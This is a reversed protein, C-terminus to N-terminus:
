LAEKLKSIRKLQERLDNGISEIPKDPSNKYLEFARKDVVKLNLFNELSKIALSIQEELNKLSVCYKKSYAGPSLEYNELKYKIETALGQLKKLLHHMDENVTEELLDQILYAKRRM